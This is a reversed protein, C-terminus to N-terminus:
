FPTASTDIVSGPYLPVNETELLVLELTALADIELEIKVTEAKDPPVAPCLVVILTESEYPFV